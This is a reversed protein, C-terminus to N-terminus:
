SGSLAIGFRFSFYEMARNFDAETLAGNYMAFAAVHMKTHSAEITGGARGIEFASSATVKQFTLTNTGDPSSFRRNKWFKQAGTKLHLAIICYVNSSWAASTVWDTNGSGSYVRVAFTSGSGHSVWWGENSAHRATGFAVRTAGAAEGRALVCFVTFEDIALDANFARANFLTGTANDLDFTNKGGAPGGTNIATGVSGASNFDRGAGSQDNMNVATTQDANTHADFWVLLNAIATPDAIPHLKLSAHWNTGDSVVTIASYQTPIVFSSAGDITESASPVVTVAGTGTRKITFGQGKATSPSPLTVNYTSAGGALVVDDALTVTYAATVAKQARRLKLSRWAGDDNFYLTWGFTTHNVWALCQRVKGPVKGTGIDTQDGTWLYVPIPGDLLKQFNGNVASDWGSVGGVVSVRLPRSM